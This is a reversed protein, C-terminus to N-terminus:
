FAAVCRSAYQVNKSLRYMAMMRRRAGFSPGWLQAMVAVTPQHHFHEWATNAQQMALAALGYIRTERIHM